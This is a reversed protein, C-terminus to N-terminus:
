TIAASLPIMATNDIGNMSSVYAGTRRILYSMAEPSGSFALVARRWRPGSRWSPLHCNMHILRERGIKSKVRLKMQKTKLKYM